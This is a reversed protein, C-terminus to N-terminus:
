ALICKMGYRIMREEESLLTNMRFYDSWDTEHDWVFPDGHGVLSAFRRKHYM